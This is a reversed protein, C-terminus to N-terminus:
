TSCWFRVQCTSIMLSVFDSRLHKSWNLLIRISVRNSYAAATVLAGDSISVGHHSESIHKHAGRFTQSDRFFFTSVSRIAAEFWALHKRDGYCKAWEGDGVSVEQSICSRKRNQPVRWPNHKWSASSRIRLLLFTLYWEYLLPNSSLYVEPWLQNSWIALMSRVRQKEWTLCLISRM